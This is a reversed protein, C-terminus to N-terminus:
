SCFVLWYEVTMLLQLLMKHLSGSVLIPILNTKLYNILIFHNYGSCSGFMSNILAWTGDQAHRCYRCTKM